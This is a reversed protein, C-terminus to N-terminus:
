ENWPLNMKKPFNDDVGSTAEDAEIKAFFYAAAREYWEAKLIEQELSQTKKKGARERYKFANIECYYMLAATGWIAEMKIITNIRESDYHKADGVNNYAEEIKSEKKEDM